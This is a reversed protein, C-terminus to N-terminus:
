CCGDEESEDRSEGYLERVAPSVGYAPGPDADDGARRHLAGVLARVLLDVPPVDHERGRWTWVRCDVDDCESLDACDECSGVAYDPQVDRGDIRVTPSAPLHTAEAAAEDSVHVDRVEVAADYASLLPEVREVAADLAASTDHCRECTRDDLYLLDVTLRHRAYEAPPLERTTVTHTM